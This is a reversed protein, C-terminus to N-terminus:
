ELSTWHARLLDVGPEFQAYDQPRGFRHVPIDKLLDTAWRLFFAERGMASILGQLSAHARLEFFAEMPSLLTIKPKSGKPSWDMLYLAKLPRPIQDFRAHDLYIYKGARPSTAARSTQDLGGREASEKFLHLFPIGPWCMWGKGTHRILLKDEALLKLGQTSLGAALTSKGTGSDGGFAICVGDSV